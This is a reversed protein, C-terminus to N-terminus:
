TAADSRRCHYLIRRGGGLRCTELVVYHRRLTAEFRQPDYDAYQDVRNRLLRAVKDDDRGVFEIVLEPGLGALWDVFRQLPINAGIVIHHVLALALVLGPRGRQALSQREALNWGWAPSPDALNQVLPLIRGSALADGNRFLREVALHDADMALVLPCHRAALGAFTGTNCGLDWAQRAGSREAAAAVFRHKAQLDEDSYNHHDAYDAWESATAKWSLRRVLKRLRRVNALVLEHRFGASGLEGRLDRGTGGHRRDLLAQLHVHTFVGGRLRDRWGCIRAMQQLDIGDIRARLFPQFDVNRYSQLMLPFLYMQCFQRYGAWPTNGAPEFSPLDIFVPRGGIFQVNYPTADKTTWGELLAMELLRLQLRAAAQLMGFTWEYPYSVFPVREHQLWGAWQPGAPEPPAVEETSIIDGNSCATRYFRTAQLARFHALAQEGLGRYVRAGALYVQGQRDRFSGAEETLAAAAAPNM